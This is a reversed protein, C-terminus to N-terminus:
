KAVRGYSIRLRSTLTSTNHSRMYEAAKPGYIRGLIAMAEAVSGYDSVSTFDHVHMGDVLPVDVGPAHGLVFDVPPYTPDLQEVPTPDSLLAPYSSQLTPALEGCLTGPVCDMQILWGAPKLVRYAENVDLVAWSATVADVSADPLPLAARDARRYELNRCGVAHVAKRGFDVVSAYADFAYIHRAYEALSISSRGTGAGIDAIALGDLDILTPLENILSVTSLAFRHYLDPYRASLWDFEFYGPQPNAADYNRWDGEEAAPIDYGLAAFDLKVEM